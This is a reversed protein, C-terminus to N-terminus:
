KCGDQNVLAESQLFNQNLMLYFIYKRMKDDLLYVLFTHSDVSFLHVLFAKVSDNLSVKVIFHYIHTSTKTM